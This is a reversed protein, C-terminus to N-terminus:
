LYTVKGHFVRTSSQEQCLATAEITMEFVYVVDNVIQLIPGSQVVGQGGGWAGFLPINNITFNPRPSFYHATGVREGFDVDCISKRLAFDVSCTFTVTLVIENCNSSTGSRLNVALPGDFVAFAAEVTVASSSVAAPGTVVSCAMAAPVLLRAAWRGPKRM